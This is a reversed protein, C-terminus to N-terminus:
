SRIMAADARTITHARASLGVTASTPTSRMGMKCSSICLHPPRPPSAGRLGSVAPRLGPRRGGRALEGPKSISAQAGPAGPVM